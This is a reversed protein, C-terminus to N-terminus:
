CNSCIRPVPACLGRAAPDQSVYQHRGSIRRRYRLHRAGRHKFAGPGMRKQLPLERRMTGHESRILIGIRDFLSVGHISRAYSDVGIVLAGVREDGVLPQEFELVNMADFEFPQWVRQANGFEHARNFLARRMEPALHAVGIHVRAAMGVRLTEDHLPRPADVVGEIGAGAHQERLAM